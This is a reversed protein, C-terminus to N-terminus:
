GRYPGVGKQSGVLLCITGVLLHVVLVGGTCLLHGVLRYSSSCL